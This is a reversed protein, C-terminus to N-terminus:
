KNEPEMGSTEDGVDEIMSDPNINNTDAIKGRTETDPTYTIIKWGLPASPDKIYESM